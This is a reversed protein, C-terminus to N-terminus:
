GDCQRASGSRVTAVHKDRGRDSHILRDYERRCHSSVLPAAHIKSKRGLDFFQALARAGKHLFVNEREFGIRLIKGFVLVNWQRPKRRNLLLCLLGSQPRRLRRLLEAAHRQRDRGPRHHVLFRRARNEPASAMFQMAGSSPLIFRSARMPVGACFSHHSRGITSPLTFDAKAMVSGAGPPPESGLMIRVWASLVFPLHTIRPRLHNMVPAPSAACKMTTARVESSLRRPRM